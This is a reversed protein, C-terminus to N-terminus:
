FVVYLYNNCVEIVKNENVKIVKIDLTLVYSYRKHVKGEEYKVEFYFKICDNRVLNIGGYNEIQNNKLIMNDNMVRENIEFYYNDNSILKRDLLDKKFDRFSKNNDFSIYVEMNEPFVYAYELKQHIM